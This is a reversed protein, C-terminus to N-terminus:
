GFCCQKAEVLWWLARNIHEGTSPIRSRVLANVTSYALIPWRQHPFSLAILGYYLSEPKKSQRDLTIMKVIVRNDMFWWSHVRSWGSMEGAPFWWGPGVPQMVNCWKKRQLTGWPHATSTSIKWSAQLMLWSAKKLQRWKAVIFWWKVMGYGDNLSEILLWQAIMWGDM